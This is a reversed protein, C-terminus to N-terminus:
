RKLYANFLVGKNGIIDEAKVWYGDVNNIRIKNSVTDGIFLPDEYNMKRIIKAERTPKDRLNLGNKSSVYFLNKYSKDNIKYYYPVYKRPDDDLPNMYDPNKIMISDLELKSIFYKDLNDENKFYEKPLKVTLIYDSPRKQTIIFDCLYKDVDSLDYIKFVISNEMEKYDKIIGGFQWEIADYINLEIYNNKKNFKLTLNQDSEIGIKIIKVNNNYSSNLQYIDSKMLYEFTLKNLDEKVTKEIKVQNKSLGIEKQNTNKCSLFFLSLLIIHLYM